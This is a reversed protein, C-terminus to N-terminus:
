SSRCSAKTSETPSTLRARKTDMEREVTARAEALVREEADAAISNTREATTQIIATGTDTLVPCNSLEKLAAEVQSILRCVRNEVRKRLLADAHQYSGLLRQLALAACSFVFVGHIVGGIPRADDRWPSIWANGDWCHEALPSVEEVLFLWNHAAEHTVTEAFVFQDRPLSAHMAGFCNTDAGSFYPLDVKGPIKVFTLTKIITLFSLFDAGCVDNLVKLHQRIHDETYVNDGWARIAEGRTDTEPLLCQSQLLGLRGSSLSQLANDSLAALESAMLGAREQSVQGRNFALLGQALPHSGLLLYDESPLKFDSSSRGIAELIAAADSYRRQLQANLREDARMTLAGSNELSLDIM